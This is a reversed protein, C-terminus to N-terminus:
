KEPSNHNGTPRRAGEMSKEHEETTQEIQADIAAKEQPTLRALHRVWLVMRWIEHPDHDGEFGPMGSHRIGKAITFYMEADSWDQIADTLKPVRPYFEAELRSRGGGDLGHCVSCHENFDDQARKLNEATPQLPNRQAGANRRVWRSVVVRAVASASGPEAAASWDLRPLVLFIAASVLGTLALIVCIIWTMANRM